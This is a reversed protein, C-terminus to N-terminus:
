GFLNDMDEQSLREDGHPAETNAVVTSAGDTSASEASPPPVDPMVIEEVVRELQSPEVSLIRLEARRGDEPFYVTLKRTYNWRGQVVGIRGELRKRDAPSLISLREATFRVKDDRSLTTIASEYAM